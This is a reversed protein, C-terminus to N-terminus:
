EETATFHINSMKTIAHRISDDIAGETIEGGYLHAIPISFLLAASVAALIEYRDGLVLIIDPQLDVFADAFGSLAQGMSHVIAQPNDSSANMYVKKHIIFGDNEIEQYTNGHEESLHMNTVILQLESIKSDHILRIVCSLLGYEARTGTIVCIKKM